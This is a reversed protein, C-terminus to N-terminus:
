MGRLQMLRVVIRLIEDVWWGPGGDDQGVIGAATEMRGLLSLARDRTLMWDAAVEWAACEDLTVFDFGLRSLDM